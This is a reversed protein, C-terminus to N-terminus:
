QCFVPCCRWCIGNVYRVDEPPSSSHKSWYISLRVLPPMGPTIVRCVFQYLSLTLPFLWTTSLSADNLKYCCVDQSASACCPIIFVASPFELRIIGLVGYFLLFPAIAVVQRGSYVRDEEHVKYRNWSLRNSESKSDNGAHQAGIFWPFVLNQDANQILGLGVRRM